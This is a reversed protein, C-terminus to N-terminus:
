EQLLGLNRCKIHTTLSRSRDNKDAMAVLTIQVSRIAMLQLDDTPDTITIVGGAGDLYVLDLADINEALLTGNRHLETGVLAYTIDEDLTSDIKGDPGPPVKKSTLDMTFRITHEGGTKIKAEAAGTPNCGAMRIEKAMFYMAARLNQQIEAVQEQVVYSRQQSYYASYIGAMVVSAIAIAVLLEILTFGKNTKM